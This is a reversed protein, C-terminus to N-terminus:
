RTCLKAAPSTVGSSVPDSQFKGSLQKLAPILRHDASMQIGSMDVVMDDPIGYRDLVPFLVAAIGSAVVGLHPRFGIRQAFLM